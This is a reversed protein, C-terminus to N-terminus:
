LKFQIPDKEPEKGSFMFINWKKDFLDLQVIKTDNGDDFILAIKERDFLVPKEEMKAEDFLYFVELTDFCLDYKVEAEEFSPHYANVFLVFGDALHVDRGFDIEKSKNEEIDTLEVLYCNNSIIKKRAETM